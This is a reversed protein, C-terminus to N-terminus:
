RASLLRCPPSTRAMWCFGGSDPREFGAILRLTTTKGSGSPGLLTFFEGAHVTLDLRSLAVAGGYSKAVGELQVIPQNVQAGTKGLDYRTDDM